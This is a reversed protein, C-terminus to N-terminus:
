FSIAMPRMGQQPRRVVHQPWSHGLGFVHFNWHHDRRPTGNGRAECRDEYERAQGAATRHGHPGLNRNFATGIGQAHFGVPSWKFVNKGCQTGPEIQAVMCRGCEITRDSTSILSRKHAHYRSQEVIVIEDQFARGFVDLNEHELPVPLIASRYRCTRVGFGDRCRWRRRGADLLGGIGPSGPRTNPRTLLSNRLCVPAKRRRARPRDLM